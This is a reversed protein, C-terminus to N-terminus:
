AGWPPVPLSLWTDPTDWWRRPLSRSGRPIPFSRQTRPGAHATSNSLLLGPGRLLQYSLEPLLKCLRCDSKLQPKPVLDERM